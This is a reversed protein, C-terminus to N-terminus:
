HTETVYKTTLYGDFTESGGESGHGSDKVGGFPIEPWPLATQNISVMGSELETGLQAATKASTTFAYAALGYPLRNACAVAEDATEFRRIPAIPGFPEVNMLEAEEPVDVLVTPAHFHGPGPLPEGGLLVQAGRGVADGVFRRMAEIRRAHMLPGMTSAPDLGSGVKVQRAAAVFRDVFREYAASQM